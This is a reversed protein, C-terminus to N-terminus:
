EFGLEDFMNEIPSLKKNVYNFVENMMEDIKSQILEVEILEPTSNRVRIKETKYYSNTQGINNVTIDHWHYGTPSRETSVNMEVKINYERGNCDFQKNKTM